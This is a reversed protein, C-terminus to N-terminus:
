KDNLTTSGPNGHFATSYASLEYTKDDAGPGPVAVLDRPFLAHGAAAQMVLGAIPEGSSREVLRIRRGAPHPAWQEGWETMAALIPYLAMGKPTLRYEFARGDDPAAKRTLIGEDTLRKLRLSLVKSGIGLHRQFDDFRAMGCFANRLILLSWWEGVRELTQAIPCNMDAFSSKTM